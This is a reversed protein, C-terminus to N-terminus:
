KITECGAYHVRCRPGLNENTKKIQKKIGEFREVVAKAMLGVAAEAGAGEVVLL